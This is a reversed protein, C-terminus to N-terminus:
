ITGRLHDAKVQRLFRSITHGIGRIYILDADDLKNLLEFFYEKTAKKPKTPKPLSYKVNPNFYKIIAGVAQSITRRPVDPYRDELYPFIYDSHAEIYQQKKVIQWVRVKSLAYSKSIDLLSRGFKWESYIMYDREYNNAM